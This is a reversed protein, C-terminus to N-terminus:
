RCIILMKSRGRGNPHRRNRQGKPTGQSPSVAVALVSCALTGARALSTPPICVTPSAAGGFGLSNGRDGAKEACGRDPRNCLPHGTCFHGAQAEVQGTPPCRPFQRLMREPSAACPRDPPGGQTGDPLCTCVSAPTHPLCAPAGPWAASSRCAAASLSSGGAGRAGRAGCEACPVRAGCAPTGRGAEGTPTRRHKHSSGTVQCRSEGPPIAVEAPTSKVQGHAALAADGPSGTQPPRTQLVVAECGAM